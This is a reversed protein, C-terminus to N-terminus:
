HSWSDDADTDAAEKATGVAEKEEAKLQAMANARM